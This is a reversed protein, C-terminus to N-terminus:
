AAFATNMQMSWENYEDLCGHEMADVEEWTMPGEDLTLLM